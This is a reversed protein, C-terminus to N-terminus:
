FGPTFLVEIDTDNKRVFDLRGVGTTLIRSTSSASRLLTGSGGSLTIIGASINKIFITRSQGPLPVFTSLTSSAPLTATVASAATHEITSETDFQSATYTVAGISTTATVGGGQTFAGSTIGNPFRTGTAGLELTPETPVSQNSGVLVLFAVFVTLATNIWNHLTNM